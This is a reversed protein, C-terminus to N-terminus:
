YKPKIYEKVRLDELYKIKREMKYYLWPLRLEM